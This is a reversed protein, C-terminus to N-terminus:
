LSYTLLNMKYFESYYMIPDVSFIPMDNNQRKGIGKVFHHFSVKRANESRVDSDVIFRKMDYYVSNKANIKDNAFNKNYYTFLYKAYYINEEVELLYM